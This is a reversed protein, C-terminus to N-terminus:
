SERSDHAREPASPVLGVGHDTTLLAQVDVIVNTSAKTFVCMRGEDLAVTALNTTTQGALHNLNSTAPRGGAAVQASLDRCRGASLYGDALGGTVTLAVAAAPADVDLDIEILEGATPRGGARERTDLARRPAVVEWGLGDDPDLAALADVVVDAQALSFVCLDAPDSGARLLALNSRATTAPHNLNSFGAERGLSGCEGLQLYGASQGGVAALNVLLDAASSPLLRQEGAAVPGATERTDLVRAPTGPELWRVEDTDGPVLYGVVDVVSHVPSARYVCFRADSDLPVIALTAVSEGPAYTLSSTTRPGAPQATCAELTLYGPATADTATLNVLAATAGEPAQTTVPLRWRADPRGSLNCRQAANGDDDIADFCELNPNNAYNFQAIARAQAPTGRFEFHPADRVVSSREAGAVNCGSNWGYGGWYLGWREAARIAWEPLDTVVPTLCASQGNQSTYTQIPNADSNMDIALGWAHLSLDSPDGAPCSWTGTCRFSYGSAHRVAYGGAQLEALFGEFLQRADTHTELYGVRLDGVPATNSAINSAEFGALAPSGSYTYGTWVWGDGVGPAPAVGWGDQDPRSWFALLCDGVDGSEAQATTCKPPPVPLTYPTPDLATAHAPAAPALPGGFTAAAIAMALLPARTRSTMPMVFDNRYGRARM